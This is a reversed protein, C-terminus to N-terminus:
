FPEGDDDAPEDDDSPEGDDDSPEGDDDSPEGDDDSPEGDDDSPEGDDDSPEDGDDGPEDDDDGPEDDDDGPRDICDDPTSDDKPACKEIWKKIYEIEKPNLPAKPPMEGYFVELYLRSKLPKGKRLIPVFRDEILYNYENLKIPDNLPEALSDSHCSICKPKLIYEYLNEFNLKAEGKIIPNIISESTKVRFQLEGKEIDLPLCGSLITLLLTIVTLSKINSIKETLSGM